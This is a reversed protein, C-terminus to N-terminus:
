QILCIRVRLIEGSPNRLYEKAWEDRDVNAATAEDPLTLNEASV